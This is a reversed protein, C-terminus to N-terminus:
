LKKSDFYAGARQLYRDILTLTQSNNEKALETAVRIMSLAAEETTPILGRINVLEQPTKVTRTLNEYAKLADIESYVPPPIQKRTSKASIIHNPRRISRISSINLAM